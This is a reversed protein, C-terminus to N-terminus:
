ITINFGSPKNKVFVAGDEAFRKKEGKNDKDTIKKKALGRGNGGGDGNLSYNEGGANDKTQVSHAQQQEQKEQQITVNQQVHTGQNDENTKQTSVEHTQQIMGNFDIPRVSM